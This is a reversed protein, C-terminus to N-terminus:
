EKTEIKELISKLVENERKLGNTLPCVQENYDKRNKCLIKIVMSEEDTLKITKM